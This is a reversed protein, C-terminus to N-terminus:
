TDTIRVVVRDRPGGRLREVAMVVRYELRYKRKLLDVTRARIDDGTEIVARGTLMAADPRIRGTRSCARLQVRPDRRLRKVKGSEQPTLVVLADGDRAVWVPTSVPEGTRRFTTLSVFGESELQQLSMLHGAAGPRALTRRAQGATPVPGLVQGQRAPDALFRGAQFFGFPERNDAAPSDPPAAARGALPRDGGLDIHGGDAVPADVDQRGLFGTASVILGPESSRM